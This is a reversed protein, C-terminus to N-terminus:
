NTTNVINIIYEKVACTLLCRKSANNYCFIANWPVVGFVPAIILAPLFAYIFPSALECM